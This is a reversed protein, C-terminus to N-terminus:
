GGGGFRSMLEYRSTAGLKRLLTAVQNAITRESVGRARAIARNSEGRVVADLVARQAETLSRKELVRAANWSFVVFEEGDVSLRRAELGAPPPVRISDRKSKAGPAVHSGDYKIPTEGDV